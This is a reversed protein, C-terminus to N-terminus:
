RLASSLFTMTKSLISEQGDHVEKYYSVQEAVPDISCYVTAVNWDEVSGVDASLVVLYEQTSENFRTSLPLMHSRLLNAGLKAQLELQCADYADMLGFPTKSFDRSGFVQEAGGGVTLDRDSALYATVISVLLALFVFSLVMVSNGRSFKEWATRFPQKFASASLM